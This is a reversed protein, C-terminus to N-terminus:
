LKGIHTVCIPENTVSFENEGDDVTQNGLFKLKFKGPKKSMTTIGDLPISKMFILRKRNEKEDPLEDLYGTKMFKSIIRKQFYGAMEDDGDIKLGGRVIKAKCIGNKCVMKFKKIPLYTDDEKEPLPYIKFTGIKRTNHSFENILKELISAYYSTQQYVENINNRIFDKKNKQFEMVKDPICSLNNKNKYKILDEILLDDAIVDINYKTEFYSQFIEPYKTTNNLWQDDSSSALLALHYEELFIKIENSRM